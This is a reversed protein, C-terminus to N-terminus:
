EGIPRDPICYRVGPRITAMSSGEPCDRVAPRPQPQTFRWESTGCNGGADRVCPPPLPPMELRRERVPMGAGLLGTVLLISFV